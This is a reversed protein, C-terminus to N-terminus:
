RGGPTRVNPQRPPAGLRWFIEPEITLPYAREDAEWADNLQRKFAELRRQVLAADEKEALYSLRLISPAKRLEALLLDIRPRWQIRIETSGPEFAADTLDIGVVRHISAGFNIKLAKGRTARKVQVQNTSM